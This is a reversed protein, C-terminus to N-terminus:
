DFFPLSPLILQYLANFIQLLYPLSIAFLLSNTLLSLLFFLWINSRYSSDYYDQSANRMHHLKYFFLSYLFFYLTYYM